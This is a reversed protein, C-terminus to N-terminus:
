LLELIKGIEKKRSEIESLLKEMEEVDSFEISVTLKKREFNEPYFIKIQSPMKLTKIKTKILSIKKSLEPFRRRKLFERLLKIKQKRSDDSFIINKIEDLKLFKAVPIKERKSIEFINEAIERMKNTSPRLAALADALKKRDTKGLLKLILAAGYSIEGTKLRADIDEPFKM